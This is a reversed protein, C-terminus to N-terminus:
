SAQKAIFKQSPLRKVVEEIAESQKDFFVPNRATSRWDSLNVGLTRYGPQRKWVSYGWITAKGQLTNVRCALVAPGNWDYVAWLPTNHHASDTPNITAM